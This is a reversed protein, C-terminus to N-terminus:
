LNSDKKSFECELIEMTLPTNSVKVTSLTSQSGFQLKAKEIRRQILKDLAQFDSIRQNWVRKKITDPALTNHLAAIQTQLQNNLHMLEKQESFANECDLTAQESDHDSQAQKEKLNALIQLFQDEHQQLPQVSTTVEQPSSSSTNEITRPQDNAPLPVTGEITNIATGKSPAGNLTVTKKRPAM